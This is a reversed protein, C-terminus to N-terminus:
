RGKIRPKMYDSTQYPTENDRLSTWPDGRRETAIFLTYNLKEATAGGGQTHTTAFSEAAHAHRTRRSSRPLFIVRRIFYAFLSVQFTSLSTDRSESIQCALYEGSGLRLSRFEMDNIERSSSYTSFRARLSNNQCM